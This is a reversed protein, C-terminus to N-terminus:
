NKKKKKILCIMFHRKFHTISQYNFILIKRNGFINNHFIFNIFNEFIEDTFIKWNDIKTTNFIFKVVNNILNINSSGSNM